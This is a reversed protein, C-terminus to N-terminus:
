IVRWKKLVVIEAKTKGITNIENNLGSVISQISSIRQKEAALADRNAKEKAKIAEINKLLFKIM